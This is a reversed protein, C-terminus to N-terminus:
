EPKVSIENSRITLSVPVSSLKPSMQVLTRQSMSPNPSWIHEPNLALKIYWRCTRKRYVSYETLLFSVLSVYHVPKRNESKTREWGSSHGRHDREPGFHAARHNLVYNRPVRFCSESDRLSSYSRISALTPLPLFVMNHLFLSLPPPSSSLYYPSVFWFTSYVYCVPLSCIFLLLNLHLIIFLILFFLTLFYHIPPILFLRLV